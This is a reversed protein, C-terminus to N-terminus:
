EDTIKIINQELLGSFFAEVSGKKLNYRKYVFSPTFITGALERLLKASDKTIISKFRGDIIVVFGFKEERLIVNNSVSLRVDPHIAKVKKKELLIAEFDSSTAYPDMSKVNGYFKCDMRCGGSCEFFYKCKKCEDPILSGDRWCSLRPWITTLPENIANGFSDNSHGCPRVQGDSGITCGTKGASCSRNLLFKGYRKLDKLLCIPYTTLSDVKIGTESELKILEDFITSIEEPQLKLDDFNSSYQSPHVKTASFGKLGLDHIFKGTKYIHDINKRMVVMNAGIPVNYRRLLKISDLLRKFSGPLTTIGDHVKEDFSLISTLVGINFKKLMFAIDSNALTLNSNMSCKLGFRKCLEFIYLMLDPFLMPEGGTILLGPVESKKLNKIISYIEDKNLTTDKERLKRWHNYCHICCHNCKTTIELQVSIPSKLEKYMASKEYM